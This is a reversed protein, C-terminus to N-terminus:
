APPSTGMTGNSTRFPVVQLSYPKADKPAVKRQSIKWAWHWLYAAQDSRYTHTVKVTAGAAQLAQIFEKVKDRFSMELDKIDESTPANRNIWTVWYAGSLISRNKPPAVMSREKKSKRHPVETGRSLASERM